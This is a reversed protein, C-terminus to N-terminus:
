KDPEWEAERYNIIEDILVPVIEKDYNRIYIYKFGAYKINLACVHCPWVDESLLEHGDKYGVLVMVRFSDSSTTDNILAATEAHVEAGIEVNTHKGTTPLDYVDRSCIRNCCNSARANYGTSYGIAHSYERVIVAGYQRRICPSKKAEEQAIKFYPELHKNQPIRQM